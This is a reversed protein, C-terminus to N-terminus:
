IEALTQVTAIQDVDCGDTMGHWAVGLVLDQVRM